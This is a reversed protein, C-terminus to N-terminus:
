SKQRVATDMKQLAAMCMERRQQLTPVRPVTLVQAKHRGYYCRMSNTLMSKELGNWTKNMNDTKSVQSIAYLTKTFFSTKGTKLVTDTMATGSHIEAEKLIYFASISNQIRRVNDDPLTGHAGISVGLYSTQKTTDLPWGAPTCVGDAEGSAPQVIKCKRVSWIMGHHATCSTAIDLLRQMMVDSTSHSKVDIAFLTLDRGQGGSLREHASTAEAESQRAAKELQCAVTDMCFNFLATSLLSVQCVGGRIVRSKQSGYGQTKIYVPQLVFSAACFLM